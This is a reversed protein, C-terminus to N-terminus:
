ETQYNIIFVANTEVMDPRGHPPLSSNHLRDAM